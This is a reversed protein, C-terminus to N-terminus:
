RPAAASPASPSGRRRHDQRAHDPRAPRRLAAASRGTRRRPVLHGRRLDARHRPAGDGRAPAPSFRAPTGAFGCQGHSRIWSLRPSTGEGAERTIKVCARPPTTGRCSSPTSSCPTPCAPLTRSPKPRKRSGSKAPDPSVSVLVWDHTGTPAERTFKALKARNTFTRARRARREHDSETGSNAFRVVEMSPIRETLLGGAQGRARRAPTVHRTAQEAVAEVVSPHAHGLILSGHLQRQLRPARRRRRGLHAGGRRGAHHLLPVPRIYHPQQRGAHGPAGGRVDPALSTKAKYDNVLTELTM